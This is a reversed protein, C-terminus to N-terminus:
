FFDLCLTIRPANGQLLKTLQSIEYWKLKIVVLFSKRILWMVDCVYNFYTSSKSDIYLGMIFIWSLISIISQKMVIAKMWEYNQRNRIDFCLAKVFLLFAFVFILDMHTPLDLSSFSLLLFFVHNGSYICEKTLCYCKGLEM